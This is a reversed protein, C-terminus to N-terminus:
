ECFTALNELTPKPTGLPWLCQAKKYFAEAKIRYPERRSSHWRCGNIKNYAQEGLNRLAHAQQYLAQLQKLRKLQEPTIM